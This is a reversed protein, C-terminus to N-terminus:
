SIWASSPPLIPSRSAVISAILVVISLWFAARAAAVLVVFMSMARAAILRTTAITATASEKLFYILVGRGKKGFSKISLWFTNDAPM